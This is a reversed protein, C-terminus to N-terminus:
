RSNSRRKRWYSLTEAGGRITLGLAVQTFLSFELAIFVISKNIYRNQM